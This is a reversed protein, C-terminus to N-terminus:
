NLHQTIFQELLITSRENSLDFYGTRLHDYSVTPCFVSYAKYYKVIEVQITRNPMYPWDPETKYYGDPPQDIPNECDMLTNFNWYEVWEKGFVRKKRKNNNKKGM